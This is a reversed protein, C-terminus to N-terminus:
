KKADRDIKILLDLYMWVVLVDVRRDVKIMSTEMQKIM